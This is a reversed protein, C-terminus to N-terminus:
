ITELTISQGFFQRIFEVFRDVFEFQVEPVTGILGVGFSNSHHLSDKYSHEGPFESLRATAAFIRCLSPGAMVRTM